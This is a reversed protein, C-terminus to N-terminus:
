HRHGNNAKEYAAESEAIRAQIQSPTMDHTALMRAQNFRANRDEYIGQSGQALSYMIAAVARPEGMAELRQLQHKLGLPKYKGHQKEWDSFAALFRPTDLCTSFVDVKELARRETKTRKKTKTEEAAGGTLPLPTDSSSSSSSSSSSAPSAPRASSGAVGADSTFRGGHGRSAARARAIGGPVSRRAERESNQNWIQRETELRRNARKEVLMSDHQVLPEGAADLTAPATSIVPFLALMMDLTERHQNLLDEQQDARQLHQDTESLWAFCLRRITQETVHGDRWQYALLEIYIGRQHFRMGQVTQSTLWDAAYM